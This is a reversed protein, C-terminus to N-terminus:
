TPPLSTKFGLHVTGHLDPYFHIDKTLEVLSQVGAEVRLSELREALVLHVSKQQEKALDQLRTYAPHTTLMFDILQLSCEANLQRGFCLSHFSVQGTSSQGGENMWWGPFVANQKEPVCVNTENLRVYNCVLPKGQVTGLCGSRIDRESETGRPEM